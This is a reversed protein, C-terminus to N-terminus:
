KLFTDAFYSFSTPEKTEYFIINFHLFNSNSISLSKKLYSQQSFLQSLPVHHNIKETLKILGCSLCVSPWLTLTNKSLILMEMPLSLFCMARGLRSQGWKTLQLDTCPFFIQAEMSDFLIKKGSPRQVPIDVKKKDESKSQHM